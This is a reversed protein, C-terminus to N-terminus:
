EETAEILKARSLALEIERRPTKETKKIFGELDRRAPQRGDRLAGAFDREKGEDEDGMFTTGQAFPHVRFAEGSVGLRMQILKHKTRTHGYDVQHPNHDCDRSDSLELPRGSQAGRGWEPKRLDPPLGSLHYDGDPFFTTNSGQLSKRL